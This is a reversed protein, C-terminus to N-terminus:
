RVGLTISLRRSHLHRSQAVSVQEATQEVGSAEAIEPLVVEVIKDVVAMMEGPEVTGAKIITGSLVDILRWSIFGDNGVVSISGTLLYTAESRRAIELEQGEEIQAETSGFLQRRCERVREPSQVRIPCFDGLSTNLLETITKSKIPDPETALDNFDVVALTMESATLPAPERGTMVLLVATTLTVTVAAIGIWFGKGRGADKTDRPGGEDVSGTSSRKLEAKLDAANQYRAEKEKKLTKGVVNCLEPAIGGCKESIEEHEEHVIGYLLAAEHEGKFPPEGALMEYLITGLSFIDSRHDVEEGRAQEPSM